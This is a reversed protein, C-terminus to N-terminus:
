IDVLQVDELRGTSDGFRELRVGMKHLTTLHLNALPTGQPCRIHRGGKIQGAGKGLLLATMNEHSHRDSDSLGSGYFIMSHDLLSGEGDPTSRLKDLLYTFMQVHYRNIKALKELTKPVYLHHSIGHHGEAVGSEPYTRGSQEEALMFTFVRTLDVQLALTLLDAMIRYHDEFTAPIGGEPSEVLPMERDSQEEAVQIRREMDRVAELYETVRSRDREGLRMKFRAVDQTMSDLLSRRQAIQAERLAPDTTGGDGFLREFVARPHIEMPLPTAPTRWSITSRYACAYGADCTGLTGVQVLGLQLSDLQTETRFERAIIQDVSTGAEIGAGETRKIHVCTLYCGPGRSHDGAGEGPRADATKLYLGSLVSLQDRFPELPEQIFPLEFDPGETTPTWHGAGVSFGNPIYFAGYRRTPAAATKSMATLAPVMCDLLPLAVTAGVGRLVTRRSIAKKTIIM